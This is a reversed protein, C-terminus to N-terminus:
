IYLKPKPPNPKILGLELQIARLKKSEKDSLKEDEEIVPQGIDLEKKIQALRDEASNSSYVFSSLLLTLLLIKPAM